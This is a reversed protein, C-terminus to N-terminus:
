VGEIGRWRREMDHSRDRVEQIGSGYSWRERACGFAVDCFRRRSSSGAGVEIGGVVDDEEWFGDWGVDRAELGVEERERGCRLLITKPAPVRKRPM